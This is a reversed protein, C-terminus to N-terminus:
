ERRLADAPNTLRSDATSPPGRPVRPPDDHVATERLSEKRVAVRNSRPNAFQRAMRRGPVDRWPDSDDADNLINMHRAEVIIGIRQLDVAQSRRLVIKERKDDASRRRVGVRHLRNMPRCRRDVPLQDKLLLEGAFRIKAVAERRCAKGHRQEGRERDKREHKRRDPQVTDDCVGDTLARSLNSDADGEAGLWLADRPQHDAASESEGGSSHDDTGDGRSKMPSDICALRHGALTFEARKVSGEKGMEGPGYREIRTVAGKFLSVYFNMAEEACGEFMMQTAVTRVEPEPRVFNADRIIVWRGGQKRLVSLSYGSLRKVVEGEPSKLTIQLHVRCFALDGSVQVEKVDAAGEARIKGASARTTAAFEEKGFPERGPTHFVVDDSMLALVQDLNGTSSAKLWTQVLERIEQEDGQM